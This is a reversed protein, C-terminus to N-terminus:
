LFDSLLKRVTATTLPPQGEPAAFIMARTHRCRVQQPKRPHPMPLAARRRLYESVSVGERSARSRILRAEEESLNFSLTTM